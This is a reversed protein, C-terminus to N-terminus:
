RSYLNVDPMLSVRLEGIYKTENFGTPIHRNATAVITCIVILLFPYLLAIFILLDVLHSCARYVIESTPYHESVEPPSLILWLLVVLVQLLVLGSATLLQYCPQLYKRTQLFISRTTALPRPSTSCIFLLLSYDRTKITSANLNGPDKM